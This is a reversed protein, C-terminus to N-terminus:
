HLVFFYVAGTFALTAVTFIVFLKKMLDNAANAPNGQNETSM